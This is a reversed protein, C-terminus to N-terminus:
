RAGWIGPQDAEACRAAARIQKVGVAAIAGRSSQTQHRRPLLGVSPLDSVDVIVDQRRVKSVLVTPTILVLAGATRLQVPVAVVGVAGVMGLVGDCTVDPLVGSPDPRSPVSLPLSIYITSASSCLPSWM